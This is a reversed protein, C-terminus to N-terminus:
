YSPHHAALNGGVTIYNVCSADKHTSVGKKGRVEFSTSGNAMIADSPNRRTYTFGFFQCRVTYILPEAKQNGSILRFLFVQDGSLPVSSYLLLLCAASTLLFM